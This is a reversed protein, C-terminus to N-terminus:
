MPCVWRVAVEETGYDYNAKSSLMPNIQMDASVEWGGVTENFVYNKLGAEKPSSLFPLQIGSFYAVSVALAVATISGVIRKTDSVAM